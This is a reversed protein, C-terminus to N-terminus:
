TLPQAMIRPIYSRKLTKTLFFFLIYKMYKNKNENGDNVHEVRMISSMFGCVFVYFTTRINCGNGENVTNWVFSFSMQKIECKGNEFLIRNTYYFMHWIDDQKDSFFVAFVKNKKGNM